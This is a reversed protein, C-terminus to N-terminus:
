VVFGPPLDSPPASDGVDNSSAGSRARGGSKAPRTFVDGRNKRLNTPMKEDIIDLFNGLPIRVKGTRDYVLKLYCPILRGETNAFIPKGNRGTNFSNAVSKFFDLWAGGESAGLGAGDNLAKHADMGMFVDFMHALRDNQWQVQEEITHGNTTEADIVWERHIFLPVHPNDGKTLYDVGRFTFALVDYSKSKDDSELKTVEVKVLLARQKWNEDSVDFPATSISRNSTAAGRMATGATPNTQNPSDPGVDKAM